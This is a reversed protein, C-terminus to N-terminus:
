ARKRKKRGSKYFVKEHLSIERYGLAYGFAPVVPMVLTTCASLIVPGWSMEALSLTGALLSYNLPFFICNILRYPYLFDATFIGAKALILLLSVIFFPVCAIAGAKLGKWLDEQIHGFQHKNRDSNGAQWALGYPLSFLVCFNLFQCVVRGIVSNILLLVSLSTMLCILATVVFRLFLFFTFRPMGYKNPSEDKNLVQTASM